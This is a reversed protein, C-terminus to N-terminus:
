KVSTSLKINQATYIHEVNQKIAIFELIYKFRCAADLPSSVSDDTTWPFQQIRKVNLTRKKTDNLFIDKKFLLFTEYISKIIGDSNILYALSLNKDSEKLNRTFYKLIPFVIEPYLHINILKIIKEELYKDSMRRAPYAMSEIHYSGTRIRLLVFDLFKDISDKKQIDIDKYSGELIIDALQELNDQERIMTEIRALDSSSHKEAIQTKINGSNKMIIHRIKTM